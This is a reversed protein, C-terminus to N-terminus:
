LHVWFSSDERWSFWDGERMGWEESWEVFTPLRFYWGLPSNSGSSFEDEDQFQELLSAYFFAFFVASPNLGLLSPVGTESFIVRDAAALSVLLPLEGVSFLFVRAM